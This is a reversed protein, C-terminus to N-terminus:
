RIGGIEAITTDSLWGGNYGLDYDEPDMIGGGRHTAGFTHGIGHAFLAAFLNPIAALDTDFVAWPGPSYDDCCNGGLPGQTTWNNVLLATIGPRPGVQALAEQIYDGGPVKQRMPDGRVTVTTEDVIWNLQSGPLNRQWWALGARAQASVNARNQWNWSGDASEPAEVFVLLVPITGRMQPTDHHRKKKAEAAAPVLVACLLLLIFLRKM